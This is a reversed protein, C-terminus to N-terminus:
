KWYLYFPITGFITWAVLFVFPAQHAFLADKQGRCMMDRTEDESPALTSNSLHPCEGHLFRQKTEWKAIAAYGARIGPLAMLALTFDLLALLLPILPVM